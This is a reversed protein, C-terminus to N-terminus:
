SNTDAWQTQNIDLQNTDPSVAHHNWRSILFFFYNSKLLMAELLTSMIHHSSEFSHHFVPRIFCIVRRRSSVHLWFFTTDIVYSSSVSKYKCMIFKWLPNSTKCCWITNTNGSNNFVSTPIFFIRWVLRASFLSCYLILRSNVISNFLKLRFAFRQM